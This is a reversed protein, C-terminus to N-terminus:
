VRAGRKAATRATATTAGNPLLARAYLRKAEAIIADLRPNDIAIAQGVAINIAGLLYASADPDETQVYGLDRGVRLMDALFRVHHDEAVGLVDPDLRPLYRCMVEWDAKHERCYQMLADFVTEVVDPPALTEGADRRAALAGAAETFREHLGEEFADHIAALIHEKSPFYLYVTGTAAGAARAIQQVSTQEFGRERFLARAADLIERRRQAPPKVERRRVEDVTMRM